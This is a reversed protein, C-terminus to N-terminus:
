AACETEITTLALAHDYYVTAELIGGHDNLVHPMWWRDAEPVPARELEGLTWWRVDGDGAPCVAGGGARCRYLFLLWQFRPRPSVERVVGKLELDLATLGTDAHFERAAGTNPAEHPALRGGPAVWQGVFPPRRREILLVSGDPRRAYVLTALKPTTVEALARSPGTRGAPSGCAAAPPQVDGPRGAEADAGHRPLAARAPEGTFRCPRERYRETHNAEFAFDGIAPM